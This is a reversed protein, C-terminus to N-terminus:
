RERAQEVYLSAVQELIRHRRDSIQLRFQMLRDGAPTFQESIVRRDIKWQLGNETKGTEQAPQGITPRFKEAILQEILDHVVVLDNAKRHLRTSYSISLMASGLVMSLVLFAVIVELLTFGAGRNESPNDNMVSM